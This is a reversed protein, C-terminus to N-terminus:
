RLVPAAAAAAADATAAVDSVDSVDAAGAHLSKKRKKSNSNFFLDFSLNEHSAKNVIKCCLTSFVTHKWM